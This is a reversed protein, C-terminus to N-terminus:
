DTHLPSDLFARIAESEWEPYAGTDGRFQYWAQNLLRVPHDPSPDSDLDSVEEQLFERPATEILMDDIAQDIADAFQPIYYGYYDEVVGMASAIARWSDELAVANEEFGLRRARAAVLRARLWTVPHDRHALQDPPLHYQGRGLMRLYMSFAHAFAPGGVTLGLADCFIEQAWSYWTEVIAGRQDSERQAYSDDRHSSPTLLDSIAAQLDRVLDDMENQHSAYLLHGFEHFFLPLYLLHQQASPPM